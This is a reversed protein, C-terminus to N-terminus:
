WISTLKITIFRMGHSRISDTFFRWLLCVFLQDFQAIWSKLTRLEVLSNVFEWVQYLLFAFSFVDHIISINLGHFAPSKKKWLFWPLSKQGQSKRFCVSCTFGLYQSFMRRVYSRLPTKTAGRGGRVFAPTHVSLETGSWTLVVHAGISPVIMPDWGNCKKRVYVSTTEKRLELLARTTENM